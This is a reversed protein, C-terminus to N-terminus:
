VALKMSKKYGTRVKFLKKYKKLQKNPVKIVAKKNIGYIVNSEIVKLRTSRIVFQKVNKCKYFAKRNIKTINKGIVIKKLYKYKNFAKCDISTIKFAKGGIKITDKVILKKLNKDSKKSNTGILSVEANGDVDIKTIKYKMKKKTLINGVKISNIKLTNQGWKHLFNNALSPMPMETQQKTQEPTVNVVPTEEPKMSPKVSPSVTPMPTMTPVATSKVTPKPTPILIPELTPKSTPVPTPKATPIPFQEQEEGKYLVVYAVDNDQKYDGGETVAQIMLYAANNENYTVEEKNLTFTVMKSDNAFVDIEESVDLEKEKTVDSYLRVATKADLSSQNTLTASIQVKNDKEMHTALISVDAQGITVSVTNRALDKQEKASVSLDVNQASKVERLDIYATGLESNGPLINTSVKKIIRDGNKLIIQIDLDKVTTDGTNIVHYSIASLGDNRVNEQNIRATALEVENKQEIKVESVSNLNTETDLVNTIISWNGNADLTPSLSRWMVGKKECLAIPDSFGNETEMSAYITGIDDDENYVSWIYGGKDGNTCYEIENGFASQGANYSSIYGNLVNYSYLVGNLRACIMDDRYSIRSIEGDESSFFLNSMVNLVNGNTDFLASIGNNKGVFSAQIEDKNKYVVYDDVTGPAVAITNESIVSTGDWTATCIRNTGAKQSFDLKDNNVWSVIIEKTNECLKPMMDCSSNDTVYSPTSFTNTVEDFVSLCIESNSAYEDLVVESATEIDGSIKEKIKQWVLVLKGDIVKMDAYMDACGNDYVAQPESWVGEEKVSYMLVTGNLIDRASDYSQFLLVKKNGIEIQMPLSSPLIGDQLKTVYDDESAGMALMTNEEKKDPLWESTKDAFSTDLESMETNSNMVMMDRSFFTSVMSQKDITNWLEKRYSVLEKQIDIVFLLYCRLKASAKLEAKTCPIVTIPLSLSGKAGITAM